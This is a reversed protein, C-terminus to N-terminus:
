KPLDNVDLENSFSLECIIDREVTCQTDFLKLSRGFSSETVGVCDEVKKGNPQGYSWGIKRTKGNQFDHEVVTENLIRGNSAWKWEGEEHHDTLGVYFSEKDM